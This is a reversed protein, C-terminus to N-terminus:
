FYLKSLLLTKYGNFYYLINLPITDVIGAIITPSLKWNILDLKNTKNSDHSNSFTLILFIHIATPQFLKVHLFFLVYKCIRLKTYGIDFFLM